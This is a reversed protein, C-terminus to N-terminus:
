PTRSGLSPATPATLHLVLQNSLNPGSGLFQLASTAHASLHLVGGAPPPILLGFTGPGRPGQLAQRPGKLRRSWKRLPENVESRLADNLSALLITPVAPTKTPIPPSLRRGERRQDSVGVEVWPILSGKGLKNKGQLKNEM